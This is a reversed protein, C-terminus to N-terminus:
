VKKNIHKASLSDADWDSATDCMFPSNEMSSTSCIPFVSFPFSFSALLSTGRRFPESRTVTDNVLPLVPTHVADREKEKEKENLREREERENSM